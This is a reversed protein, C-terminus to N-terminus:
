AAQTAFGAETAIANGLRRDAKEFVFRMDARDQPSVQFRGPEGDGLGIVTLRGDL